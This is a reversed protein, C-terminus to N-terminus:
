NTYQKDHEDSMKTIKEDKNVNVVGPLKLLPLQVPFFQEVYGVFNNWGAHKLNKLYFHCFIIRSLLLM